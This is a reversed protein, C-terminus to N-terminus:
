IVHGGDRTGIVLLDFVGQGPRLPLGVAVNLGVRSGGVASRQPCLYMAVQEGLEAQAFEIYGPVEEPRLAM